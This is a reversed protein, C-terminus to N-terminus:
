RVTAESCEAVLADLKAEMPLAIFDPGFVAGGMRNFVYEASRVDQFTFWLLRPGAGRHRPAM